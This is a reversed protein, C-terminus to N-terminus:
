WGLQTAVDKWTSAVLVANEVPVGHVQTIGAAKLAGVLQERTAADAVVAHTFAGAPVGNKFCIENNHQFSTTSGSWAGPAPKDGNVQAVLEELVPRTTFKSKRKDYEAKAIADAAPGEAQTRSVTVGFSDNPYAHWDTRSLMQKMQEGTSILQVKGAGFSSSIRTAAEVARPTVLRLFAYEAGGSAEDSTLSAGAKHLGRGYRELSSMLGDSGLIKVAFELERVGVMVTKVGLQAYKEGLVPDVPAMTGPFTEELRMGALRADDIGAQALEQRLTALTIDGLEQALAEAREPAVMRLASLALLRQSQVADADALLDPEGLASLAAKLNAAREADTAGYVRLRVRDRYAQPNEKPPIYELSYKGKEEFLWAQLPKATGWEGPKNPTTPGYAGDAALVTAGDKFEARELQFPVQTAQLQGGALGLTTQLSLFSTLRLALETGPGHQPHVIQRARVGMTAVGSSDLHFVEGAPEAGIRTLAHLPLSPRVSSPPLTKEAAGLQVLGSGMQALRMGEAGGVTSTPAVPAAVPTGLEGKLPEYMTADPFKGKYAELEQASLQGDKNGVNQDIWEAHPRLTPSFSPVSRITM